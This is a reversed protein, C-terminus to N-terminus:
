FRVAIGATTTFGSLDIPAFQHFDASLTAHSREYRAETVAAFRANLNWEVGTMVHAEPAWGDSQLVASFVSNDTFDIFDGHQNFRYWTAGGGAGVYFAFRSPIWALQGISRGRNTLYQKVSLTVPVRLFETTQEIPQDNNDIFGRFESGTRMGSYGTSIVVDTRSLVRFALDGALTPSSFDHRNITLLGTTFSFIDSGASALAWGGRITLSGDPAGLLFGRGSAVQSMGISPFGALVTIFAARRAARVSVVAFPMRTSM